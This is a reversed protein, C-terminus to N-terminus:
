KIEKNRLWMNDSAFGRYNKGTLPSNGVDCLPLLDTIIADFDETTIGYHDYFYESLDWDDMDELNVKPYHKTLLFLILEYNKDM